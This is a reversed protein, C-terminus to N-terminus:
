SNNWGARSNARSKRTRRNRRTSCRRICRLELPRDGPSSRSGSEDRRGAVPSRAAGRGAETRLAGSLSTKILEFAKAQLDKAPWPGERDAPRLAEPAALARLLLADSTASPHAVLAKLAAEVATKDDDTTLTGALIQELARRAPESGNDGLAAVITEMLKAMGASNRPAGSPPTPGAGPPLVGREPRMAGPPDSKTGAGAADQDPRMRGAEPPM